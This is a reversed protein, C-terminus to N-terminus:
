IITKDKKLNELTTKQGLSDKKKTQIETQYDETIIKM